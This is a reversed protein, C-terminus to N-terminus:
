SAIEGIFIETLVIPSPGDAGHRYRSVKGTALDIDVSFPGVGNIGIMKDGVFFVFNVTCCFVCSEKSDSRLPLALVQESTLDSATDSRPRDLEVPIVLGGGVHTAFMRMIDGERIPVHSLRVSVTWGESTDDLMFQRDMIDPADRRWDGVGFLPGGEKAILKIVGDLADHLTLTV